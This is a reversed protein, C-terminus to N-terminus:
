GASRQSTRQSLTRQANRRLAEPVGRDRTLMLLDKNQLRILMRQSILAPTKPNKVLNQVVGYSRTWGRNNGIERLVEESVNRMAAFAAVESESLKPSQLVAQAVQRNPDRVLIVRAERTGLMAHRIRQPVTMKAIRDFLVTERQEPDEPLGELSLDDPTGELEMVQSEVPQVEAAAEGGISYETKKEGFFETEIERVLRAVEGSYAPNRKISDLIVPHELLRARNFLITELHSEAIIPALTDIVRAPTTPNLIIADLIERSETFTALFELVEPACNSSQALGLLESDGMGRLTKQSEQVVESDPDGALHVLLSLMEHPQVPALGRAVALRLTKPPSGDQLLKLFDIAPM